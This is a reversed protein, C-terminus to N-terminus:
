PLLLRLVAAQMSDLRSNYGVDTHTRGAPRLRPFRLIRAREAVEEQLRHHDRGGDGLCPLNKSPFFSFTAADGLAGAAVGDLSGGAAQAADELAPVGLERLEPVPAVNGALHM